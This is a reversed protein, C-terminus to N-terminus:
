GFDMSGDAAIRQISHSGATIKEFGLVLQPQGPAATVLKKGAVDLPSASIKVHFVKSGGNGPVSRRVSYERGNRFM